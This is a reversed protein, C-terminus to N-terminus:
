GPSRAPAAPLHEWWTRLPEAGASEHAVSGDSNRDPQGLLQREIDSLDERDLLQPAPDDIPALWRYGYQMM